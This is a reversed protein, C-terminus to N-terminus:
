TSDQTQDFVLCPSRDACAQQKCVLVFMQDVAHEWGDGSPGVDEDDSGPWVESVNDDSGCLGQDLAEESGEEPNDPGCSVVLASQSSALLLDEGSGQVPAEGSSKPRGFTHSTVSQEQWVTVITRLARCTTTGSGPLLTVIKDIGGGRCTTRERTGSKPPRGANQLTVNNQHSRVRDPRNFERLCVKCQYVPRNTARLMNSIALHLCLARRRHQLGILGPHQQLLEHQRLNTVIKTHTVIKTPHLLFIVANSDLRRYECSFPLAAKLDGEDCFSGAGLVSVLLPDNRLVTVPCADQLYVAHCRVGLQQQDSM